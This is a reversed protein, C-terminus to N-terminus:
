IRMVVRMLFFVIYYRYIFGNSRSLLVKYVTSTVALINTMFAAHSYTFKQMTFFLSNKM